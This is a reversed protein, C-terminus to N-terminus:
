SSDVNRRKMMRSSFTSIPHLDFILSILFTCKAVSVEVLDLFQAAHWQFYKTALCCEAAINNLNLGFEFVLYSQM